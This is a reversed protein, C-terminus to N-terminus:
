QIHRGIPKAAQSIQFHQNVFLFEENSTPSHWACRFGLSELITVARQTRQKGISRWRHHFEVCIQGISSAHRVFEASELISYEAGEIDMKLIDIYKCNVVGFVDDLTIVEVEVGNTALHDESQLSGSVNSPNSPLFLVAKGRTSGLAKPILKLKINHLTNVHAISKPTPDFGFVVCGYKQILSTSFTVDEGLGVDVVISQANLSNKLIKWGSNSNGHFELTSRTTCQIAPELGVLRKLWVRITRYTSNM